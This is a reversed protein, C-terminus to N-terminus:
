AVDDFHISLVGLVDQSHSPKTITQRDLVINTNRCLEEFVRMTKIFKTYLSCGISQGSPKPLFPQAFSPELQRSAKPLTQTHPTSRM